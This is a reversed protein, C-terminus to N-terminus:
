PNLVDYVPLIDNSDDLREIQVILPNLIQHWPLAYLQSDSVEGNFSKTAANYLWGVRLKVSCGIFSSTGDNPFGSSLGEAQLPYPLKDLHKERAGIEIRNIIFLKDGKRPLRQQPPIPIPEFLDRVRADSSVINYFQTFLLTTESDLGAESSITNVAISNQIPEGQFHVGFKNVFELYRLAYKIYDRSKREALQLELKMVDIHHPIEELYLDRM